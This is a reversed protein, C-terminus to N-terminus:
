KYEQGCYACVIWGSQLVRGCGLCVRRLVARCTPCFRYESNLLRGCSPCSISAHESVELVRGLEEVTTIGQKAKDLGDQVLSRMGSEQAVLRIDEETAQRLILDHLRQNMVLTEFVGTRGKYGTEQCKVCGKGAMFNGGALSVASLGLGVIGGADPRAPHKCNGCVKRVLRQAIIGTLVSSVLYPPVGIDMLRTITSPADNTHLTTFVLHGTLAARCAIEATEADRIEGVLIIDPDQRLISRLGAAFTLGIDANVQMQSLGPYHYEVPDEVTVINTTPTKIRNLIGYLTTTKGSGTPGTVVVM